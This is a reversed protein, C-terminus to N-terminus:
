CISSLLERSIEFLPYIGILFIYGDANYINFARGTRVGPAVPMRLTPVQTANKRVINLSARALRKTQDLPEVQYASCVRLTLNYMLAEEYEPPLTIETDLNPGINDVTWIFGSGTGGVNAALVSLEDGIAYGQGGASLNVITIGGGPGVTIDAIAGAGSGGTLEVTNYVGPTYLSGDEEISGETITSGFGLQSQVIIHLDYQNNPIPWPFFNGLPNAGDYFFHDPLSQLSKIAILIYDEYSPIMRLPMSVPNSGTNRQVVYAGKIQSPRPINLFGGLGITYSTRGDAQWSYRQLSPILWRQKQWTYVMRQLRVFARDIDQALPTQGVGILGAEDLADTCLDRATTM